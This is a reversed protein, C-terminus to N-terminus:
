RIAIRRSTKNVKVIYYGKKLNLVFEKQESDIEYSAIQTGTIAYIELRSGEANSVIVTNGKIAICTENARIEQGEKDLNQALCPTMPASLLALALISIILKQVVM